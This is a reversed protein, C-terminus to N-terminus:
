LNIKFGLGFIEQVQTKAKTDDDYIIDLLVSGAFYKSINFTFLNNFLIDVNQPNRLYNSFLDLRGIYRVTKSFQKNYHVSLYAGFETNIKSASDVGFKKVQYFDADIKTVWRITVPSVFVSFYHSTNFDKYDIGPSLLIKAPTLFNSIKNHNVLKYNHGEFLQSNFNFLAGYSFHKKNTEHEFEVTIDCRDNTKRFKNFSSADVVGLEIDLYSDMTFKGNRHHASKNLIANIGILFKEGGSSWENLASQNINLMFIGSHKWGNSDLSSVKKAGLRKIETKAPQGNVLTFLFATSIFIFIARM